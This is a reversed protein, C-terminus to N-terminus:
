ERGEAGAVSSSVGGGGGGGGVVGRQTHQTPASFSFFGPAISAVAM